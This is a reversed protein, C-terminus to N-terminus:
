VELGVLLLLYLVHLIGKRVRGRFSWHFYVELGSVWKKLFINLKKWEGGVEDFRSARNRRNEVMLGCTETQPFSLVCVCDNIADVFSMYSSSWYDIM